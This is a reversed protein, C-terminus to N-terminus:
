LSFVEGRKLDPKLDWYWTGDALRIRKSGLARLRKKIEELKEAFFNYRDYLTKADEVMDLYIYRNEEAEERSLILYSLFPEIGLKRTVEKYAKERELRRQVELVHDLRRHYNDPAKNFILLLDIDSSAKAEERAVSGYLIYSLLSDGASEKLLDLFRELLEKYFDFGLNIMKKGVQDM